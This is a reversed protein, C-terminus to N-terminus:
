KDLENKIIDLDPYIFPLSSKNFRIPDNCQNKGKLNNQNYIHDKPNYPM